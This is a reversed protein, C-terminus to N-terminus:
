RKLSASQTRTDRFYPACIDTATDKALEGKTRVVAVLHPAFPSFMQTKGSRMDTLTYNHVAEDAEGVFTVGKQSNLFYSPEDGGGDVWHCYIRYSEINADDPLNAWQIEHYIPSGIMVIAIVIILPIFIKEM